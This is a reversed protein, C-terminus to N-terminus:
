AALLQRSSKGSAYACPRRVRQIVHSGLFMAERRVQSIAPPVYTFVTRTGFPVPIYSAPLRQTRRYLNARPSSRDFGGATRRQDRRRDQGGQEPAGDPYVAPLGPSRGTGQRSGASLPKAGAAWPQQETACAAGPAM